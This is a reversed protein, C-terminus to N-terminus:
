RPSTNSASARTSYWYTTGSNFRAAVFDEGIEYAVVGSIGSRNGYRQM